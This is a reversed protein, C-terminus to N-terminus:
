REPGRFSQPPNRIGVYIHDLAEHLDEMIEAFNPIGSAPWVAQCTIGGFKGQQQPDVFAINVLGSDPDFGFSFIQIGDAQPANM